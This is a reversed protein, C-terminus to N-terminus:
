GVGSILLFEVNKEHTKPHGEPGEAFAFLKGMLRQLPFTEGEIVEWQEKESVM